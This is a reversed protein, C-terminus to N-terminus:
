RELHSVRATRPATCTHLRTFCAVSEERYRQHVVGTVRVLCGQARPAANLMFLSGSLVGLAVFMIVTGIIMLSRRGAKDVLVGSVLTMVVLTLGVSM